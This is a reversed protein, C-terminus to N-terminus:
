RAQDAPEKTTTTPDPRPSPAYIPPPLIRSTTRAPPEPKPQARRGLEESMHSHKSAYRCTGRFEVSERAPRIEGDRQKWRRALGFDLIYCRGEGDGPGDDGGGHATATPLGICFNSPKIDRHVYGNEHMERIAEVMQLGLQSVTRLSFRKTPTTRRLESLNDGLLQMVLYHIGAEKGLEVYRAIYPSTQLDSLVEEEHLLMSCKDADRAVKVALHPHRGSGDRAGHQDSVEFIESFTGRGVRRKVRWRGGLLSGEQVVFTTDNPM